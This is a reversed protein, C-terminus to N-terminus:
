RIYGLSKLSEYYEEDLHSSASASERAGFSPLRTQTSEPLLSHGKMEDSAPFGELDALTPAVDLASARKAALPITSAILGRGSQLDGPMGLIFVDYGRGHLDSVARDLSDLAGVSFTLRSAADLGIRNLVIDLAPLFATVFQRKERVASETLRSLAIQDIAEAELAPSRGPHHAAAFIHEQNDSKMLPTTQQDTVWWNFASSPIGRSALIEWIYDRRRVTPPLPARRLLGLAPIVNRLVIDTTSVYQLVAGSLRSRVGEISRVGHIEGETGSGATAWREAASLGVLPSCPVVFLGALTKRAAFIEYSLGDVALFAVHRGTPRVVIQQPRLPVAEAESRFSLFCVASFIAVAAISIPLMRRRHRVSPIQQTAHISFSLLAASLITVGFLFSLLLLALFVVRELVIAPSPFGLWWITLGACFLASIGMSIALLVRPHEIPARPRIRMFLATLVVATFVVVFCFAIYSLALTLLDIAKMPQNRILMVSLVPITLALSHAAGVKSAIVVLESWFTRSRWPDLAFWREIGHSLYGLSRLQDRLQDVTSPEPM